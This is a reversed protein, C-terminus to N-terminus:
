APPDPPASGPHAPDPLAPGPPTPAPPAAATAAGAALPPPASRLAEIGPEPGMVVLLDNAGLVRNPDPMLKEWAGGRKVKIALVNLGYGQRVELERLTRGALGPPVPLQALAYGQPLEFYDTHGRGDGDEGASRRVFRALLVEKRLVEQNYAGLLDHESVTGLFRQVGGSEETVVPHEGLDSRQLVEMARTLPDGPALPLVDTRAIDQAIVLRDVVAGPTARIHAKVDQLSVVGVYEREAGVVYITETRVDLFRRLVESLPAGPLVAEHEHRRMVDEVRLDHMIMAELGRHLSVGRRALKLTYISERQLGRAVIAAISAAVLLPTIIAYDDTLEFVMIAMTIPAHAAASAVAAMGVLAYAGPSSTQFPLAVGALKGALAGLVAGLYLSPFFVGGSGGSGLTCWTAVLKLLLLLLLVRWPVATSWSLLGEVVGDGNGLVEPAGACAIAGVALAGLAPKSWEPLRLREFLEETRVLGRGFLVAVGAALLGLVAYALLEGPHQLGHELGPTLTPTTGLGVRASVTAVASAVVIPGFCEMSFNGLVVELAFFAGAIPADFTAAIGAGAGAATLLRMRTRPAGVRQALLSGLSAGIQAIPGERGCSGGSGITLASAAAKVLAVRPRILGGELQVARMVEPVGHGKAERALFHVLPGVLLGGAVPALLLQWWPLQAALAVPDDGGMAVLQVAHLAWRLAVAGGAALLGVAVSLGLLSSTQHTVLARASTRLRALAGPPEVPATM